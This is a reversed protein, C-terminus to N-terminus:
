RLRGLTRQIVLPNALFRLFSPKTKAILSYNLSRFVVWTSTLKNYEFFKPWVFRKRHRWPTRYGRWKSHTLTLSDGLAVRRALMNWSALRNNLILNKEKLLKACAWRNKVLGTYFLTTSWQSFVTTLLCSVQNQSAQQRFEEGVIHKIYRKTTVFKWALYDLLIKQNGFDRRVRLNRNLARYENLFAVKKWVKASRRNWRWRLLTWGKKLWKKRPGVKRRKLRVNKQRLWRRVIPKLNFVTLSKNTQFVKQRLLYRRNSKLHKYRLKELM